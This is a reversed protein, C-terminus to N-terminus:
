FQSRYNIFIFKKPPFKSSIKPKELVIQTFIVVRVGRGWYPYFLSVHDLISSFYIKPCFTKRLNKSFFRRFVVLDCGGTHTFISFTFIHHQAFSTPCILWFNCALLHWKQGFHGNQPMKLGLLGRPVRLLNKEHYINSTEYCSAEVNQGFKLFISHVSGFNNDLLTM